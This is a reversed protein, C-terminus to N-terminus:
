PASGVSANLLVLIEGKGAVSQDGAMRIAEPGFGKFMALPKRSMGLQKFLLRLFEMKLPGTSRFGAPVMPPKRGLVLTGRKMGLGIHQGSRGMAIITGATMKGAMYSGTKGLVVISGGRMREGIRDGANGEVLILGGKMGTIQGPLAAGVRDGASGRISIEGGLMAAGAWEGADGRVRIEGGQMREGLNDGAHGSIEIMGSRMQCGIRFLQDTARRIQVLSADQGAIDFLGGVTVQRRGCQLQIKALASKTVGQLRDPTLPSMDIRCFANRRLTLSLPKM